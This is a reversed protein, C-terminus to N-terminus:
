KAPKAKGGTKPAIGTWLLDVFREVFASGDEPSLECGCARAAFARSHLAGILTTALVEVDCPGIRGERRARALWASLARLAQAPPPDKHKGIVKRRPIGAAQLVAIGASLEQFYSSLILGVEVLQERIPREDPGASLERAFPVEEPPGLAAILLAEKTRFRGLVTTHSVGLDRAIESASVQAGGSLFRRRAAALIADDTVEQPRAM